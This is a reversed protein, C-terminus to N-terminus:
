LFTELFDTDHVISPIRLPKSMYKLDHILYILKSYAIQSEQTRDELTKLSDVMGELLSGIKKRLVSDKFIKLGIEEITLIQVGLSLIGRENEISSYHYLSDINAIYAFGLNQKFYYSQFM